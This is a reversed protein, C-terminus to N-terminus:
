QSSTVLSSWDFKSPSILQGWYKGLKADAKFPVKKLGWLKPEEEMYHKVVAIQRLVHDYEAKTEHIGADHVINVPISKYAPDEAAKANAVLTIDSAISQHLFNSAENEVSQRNQRNVIGFRRMRGFPTVLALGKLPANRCDQIFEGARPFRKFWGQVWRDGEDVPLEFEDALSAGTRGYVIGFNVAKARMKHEGTYDPGFLTVSVEHHLGPHEPDLYIAMLAEDGSLEALCRLEAQNLDVEFLINGEDACFQSRLLADRPINQLNPKRSSLRGTVTGHILYTAHVRGDKQVHGQKIGLVNGRKGLRLRDYLNVVYTGKAKSAKRYALVLNVAPHPPLSELVDKATSPKGDYKLGIEDFLLASVQAPSNINVTHNFMQMTFEDLKAQIDKMEQTLRVENEKNKEKDVKIGNSEIKALFDSAPILVKEYATRLNAKANVRARLVQFSQLTASVDKGLYKHLIHRPIARYSTNRNPLYQDLMGKWNPAGVADNSVQELDHLGKNEDLVYSCLMLDEDVRAKIGRRHFFQVDFKGNHWLFQLASGKDEMFKKSAQSAVLEEPIVYAVHPKWGIGYCLIDDELPRFGSTEIDSSVLIRQDLRAARNHLGRYLQDLRRESRIIVERSPIYKPREIRLMIETALSIDSRFKPLSGGGRLLFAPHVSAVIGHKALPSQYINGRCQTIKARFDGTLSWLAGAGLALIVERPHRQIESILNARCVKCASALSSQDKKHGPWCKIANTIYPEPFESTYGSRKLFSKLLDGSEGIFPLGKAIENKGPSEGVIVFPSDIPGSSGCTRTKFICGVCAHEKNVSYIAAIRQKATLADALMKETNALAPQAHEHEHIKQESEQM